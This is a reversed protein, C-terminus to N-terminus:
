RTKLCSRMLASCSQILSRRRGRTELPLSLSPTYVFLASAFGSLYCIKKEGIKHREMKASSPSFGM